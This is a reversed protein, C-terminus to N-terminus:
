RHLLLSGYVDDNYTISDKKKWKFSWSIKKVFKLYKINKQIKHLLLFVDHVMLSQLLLIPLVVVVRQTDMLTWNKVLNQSMSTAM